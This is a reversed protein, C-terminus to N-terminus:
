IWFLSFTCERLKMDVPMKRSQFFSLSKYRSVLRYRLVIKCDERAQGLFARQLMSHLIHLTLLGTSFSLSELM